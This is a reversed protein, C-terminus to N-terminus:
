HISNLSVREQMVPWDCVCGLFCCFLVPIREDVSKDEWLWDSQWTFCAELKIMFMVFM